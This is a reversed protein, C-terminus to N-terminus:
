VDELKRVLMVQPGNQWPREQGAEDVLVGSTTFPGIGSEVFGLREYLARARPNDTDVCLTVQSAGRERALQLARGLLQTGIGQSRRNAVVYFDCFEPCDAFPAAQPYREVIRPVETNGTWRIYLHAVPVDENWAILWIGEDRSQKDAYAWHSVDSWHSADDDAGMRQCLLDIDGPQIPSICNINPEDPM